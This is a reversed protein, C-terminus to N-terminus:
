TVWVFYRVQLGRKSCSGDIRRGGGKMPGQEAVSVLRAPREGPNTRTEHFWRNTREGKRAALRLLPEFRHEPTWGTLAPQM